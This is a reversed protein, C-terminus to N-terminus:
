AGDELLTAAAARYGRLSQVLLPKLASVPLSLREWALPDMPPVYPSGSPGFGLVHAVIDAVHVVAAELPFRQSRSPEHHHAVAEVLSEPLRWRRLLAQGVAAHEAGWAVREVQYLPLPHQEALALATHAWDPHQEYIVLRGLDHLLGAVFYREPNAERRLVALVRAAAGCAV